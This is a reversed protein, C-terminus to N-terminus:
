AAVHYSHMAAPIVPYSHMAALIVPALTDLAYTCDTNVSNHRLSGCVTYFTWFNDLDVIRIHLFPFQFRASVFLTKKSLQEM